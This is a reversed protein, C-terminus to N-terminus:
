AEKEQDAVRLVVAVEHILEEATVACLNAIQNVRYNFIFFIMLSPLAVILGFATTLLAKNIGAAMAMAKSQTAAEGALSQFCTIMGLVTGLLGLLPAAVAVFNLVRLPFSLRGIEHVAEAELRSKIEEITLRRVNGAIVRCTHALLGRHKVALDEFQAFDGKEIADRCQEVYRPPCHLGRRYYLLCHVAVVLMILMLFAIFYMVTGGSFFRDLLTERSIFDLPGEGSVRKWRRSPDMRGRIREAVFLGGKPGKKRIETIKFFSTNSMYIDGEALTSIDTDRATAVRFVRNDGEELGEMREALYDSEAEDIDEIGALPIDLAEQAEVPATMGAGAAIGAAILAIWLSRPRM